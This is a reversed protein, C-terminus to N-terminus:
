SKYNNLLVEPENWYLMNNERTILYRVQYKM